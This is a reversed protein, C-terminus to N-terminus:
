LRHKKTELTEAYGYGTCHQHNNSLKYKYVGQSDAQLWGRFPWVSVAPQLPQKCLFNSSFFALTLLFALATCRTSYHPFGSYKRHNPNRNQQFIAAKVSERGKKSINKQISVGVNPLSLYFCFSLLMDKSSAPATAVSAQHLPKPYSWTAGLRSHQNITSKRMEQLKWTCQVQGRSFMQVTQM